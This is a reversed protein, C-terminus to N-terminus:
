QGVLKGNEFTLTKPPNVKNYIIQTVTTEKPAGGTDAGPAQKNIFTPEGCAAKVADKTDNLQIPNGCISSAGVGIGNVSINIAKGTKDFTITTKLTGEGGQTTNLAVAQTVYYNWEQAVNDDAKKTENQADPKGCQQIVTQLTDGVNIQNFNTPCFFAFAISPSIMLLFPFCKKNFM